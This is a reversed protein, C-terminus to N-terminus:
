FYAKKFLYTQCKIIFIHFFKLFVQLIVWFSFFIISRLLLSNLILICLVRYTIFIYDVTIIIIIYTLSAPKILTACVKALLKAVPDTPEAGLALWFKIREINFLAGKLTKHLSIKFNNILLLINSVVM